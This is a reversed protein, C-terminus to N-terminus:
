SQLLRLLSQAQSNAKQLAAIGSQTLVDANTYDTQARAVDAEILSSVAGEGNEKSVDIQSARFGVRASAAGVSALFGANTNIATDILGQNTAAIAATTIATNALALGAATANNGAAAGSTTINILDGSVSGLVVNAGGVNSFTGAAGTGDLLSVGNFKTQAAISSVELFLAQYEKDLNAFEATGLIGSQAATTISKLRQLVNAIQFLGGEAISLVAQATGANIAAQGLAANDAKVRTGISLAAADDSAKNIRLGSSLQQLFKSQQSSNINVYRLASNAAKNTNIVPM